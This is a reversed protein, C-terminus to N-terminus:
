PISPYKTAIFNNVATIVETNTQSVTKNAYNLVEVSITDGAIMGYSDPVGVVGTTFGQVITANGNDHLSVNAPNTHKLEFNIM